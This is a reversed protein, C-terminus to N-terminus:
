DSITNSLFELAKKTDIQNNKLTLIDFEHDKLQQHLANIKQGLVMIDDRLDKIEALHTQTLSMMENEVVSIRGQIQSHRNKLLRMGKKLEGQKRHNLLSTIGQIGLGILDTIFRKGRHYVKKISRKM